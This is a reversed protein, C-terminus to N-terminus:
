DLPVELGATSTFTGAADVNLTSLNLESVDLAGFTVADGTVVFGKANFSSGKAATAATVAVDVWFMAILFHSISNDFM